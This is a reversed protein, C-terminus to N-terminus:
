LRTGGAAGANRAPESWSRGPGSEAPVAIADESWAWIQWMSRDVMGASREFFFM